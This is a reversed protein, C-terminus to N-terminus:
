NDLVRIEKVEGTYPSVYRVICEFPATDEQVTCDIGDTNCLSYNSTTGDSYLDKWEIGHEEFFDQYDELGRFGATDGIDRFHNVTEHDDFSKQYSKLFFAIRRLREVNKGEVFSSLQSKTIRFVEKATEPFKGFSVVYTCYFDDCDTKEAYYYRGCIEEIPVDFTYILSQSTIFTFLKEECRKLERQQRKFYSEEVTV